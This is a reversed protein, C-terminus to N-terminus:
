ITLYSFDISYKERMYSIIEIVTCFYVPDNSM